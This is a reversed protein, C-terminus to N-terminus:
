TRKTVSIGLDGKRPTTKAKKRAPPQHPNSKTGVDKCVSTKKSANGAKANTGTSPASKSTSTSSGAKSRPTEKKTPPETKSASKGVMPTIRKVGKDSRPARVRPTDLLMGYQKIYHIIDLAIECFEQAGRISSYSPKLTHKAGQSLGTRWRDIVAFFIEDEDVKCADEWNIKSEIRKSVALSGEPPELDGTQHAYYADLVMVCILHFNLIAQLPHNDPEGLAEQSPLFVERFLHLEQPAHDHSLIVQERVCGPISVQAMPDGEEKSPPLEGVEFKPLKWSIEIESSSGSPNKNPSALTLIRNALPEDDDSEDEQTADAAGEEKGHGIEGPDAQSTVDEGKEEEEGKEKSKEPEETREAEAGLDGCREQGQKSAGENGAEKDEPDKCINQTDSADKELEVLEATREINQDGSSKRKDMGGDDEEDSEIVRRKRKASTQSPVPVPSPLQSPFSVPLPLPSREKHEATQSPLSPPLPRGVTQQMPPCFLDQEPFAYFDLNQGDGMHQFPVSQFSNTNPLGHFVKATSVPEYVNSPQFPLGGAPYRAGHVGVNPFNVVNQVGASINPFTYQLQQQQCSFPNDQNNLVTYPDFGNLVGFSAMNSTQGGRQLLNTKGVANGKSLPLEGHQQGSSLISSVQKGAPTSPEVRIKLMGNPRNPQHNSAQNISDAQGAQPRLMVATPAPMGGAINSPEKKSNKAPVDYPSSTTSCQEQKIPVTVETPTAQAPTEQPQQEQRPQEEQCNHGGGGGGNMHPKEM